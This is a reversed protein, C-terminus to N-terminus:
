IGNRLERVRSCVLLEFILCVYLYFVVHKQANVM